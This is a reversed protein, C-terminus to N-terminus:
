NLKLRLGLSDSVNGRPLIYDVGVGPRQGGLFHVQIEHISAPTGSLDLQVIRLAGDGASRNDPNSLILQTAVVEGSKDLVRIEWKEDVGDVDILGLTAKKTPNTYAIQFYADRANLGPPYALFYRGVLEKHPRGTLPELASTMRDYYRIPRTHPDSSSLAISTWADSTGQGCGADQSLGDFSCGPDTEFTEGIRPFTSRGTAGDVIAIKIGHSAEFQRSVQMGKTFGKEFDILGTQALSPGAYLFTGIAAAIAFTSSLM